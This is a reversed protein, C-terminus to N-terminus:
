DRREAFVLSCCTVAGEAKQLESIDVPVVDIGAARLREQTKPFCVPHIVRGGIRLANAAHEEGPDVAILRHEAFVAMDVWEPQVLLVGDAVQTAASKLHLCGHTPVARVDYGADVLKRTIRFGMKGGSGLIAISTTM